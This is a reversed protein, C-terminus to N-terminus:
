DQAKRGRNWMKALIRAAEASTDAPAPKNENGQAPQAAPLAPDTRQMARHAPSTEDTGSPPAAPADDMMQLLEEEFREEQSRTDRPPSADIRREGVAVTAVTGRPSELSALLRSVFRAIAEQQGAPVSPDIRVTLPHEHARRPAALLTQVHATVGQAIKACLRAIKGPADLGEEGLLDDVSRPREM